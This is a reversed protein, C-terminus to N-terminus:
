SGIVQLKCIAKLVQLLEIAREFDILNVEPMLQYTPPKGPQIYVFRYSVGNTALGWISEQQKLSKFAYTLLQPLGNLESIESNKAEILLIWFRPLGIAQANKVGLIDMRGTIVTDGDEVNIQEINEELTIEVSYHFFHALRMLPSLFLFKVQGESIKGAILYSNFYEQIELLQQQEFETLTELSLLSTFSGNLQMQFGFTRHVQNLTLNKANLTPM